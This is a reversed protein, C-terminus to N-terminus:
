INFNNKIIGYFREGLAALSYDAKITQSANLGLQRALGRNNILREMSFIFQEQSSALLGNYENKIICNTEGTSSAIIPKGKAMYELLKVPSKSLNFRTKDWLPFLGADTNDLYDPIDEPYIWGHYVISKCNYRSILRSLEQVFIGDGAISLKIFPYKQYLTLFAEIIFKIYAISELRNVSGHWSFIFDKKEKGPAPRFKDTDVGTPLYYVKRNFQLLYERLYSSAAICFVSKKAFLRTLYEAKSKPFVGFYYGIDERAEWDDMDFVCPVNKAKSALWAALTHYNFRNVIFVSNNTQGYLSAWGKYIYKTKKRFNFNSEDKGSKGGLNDAFSFVSANLGKERLKASFGYSRIRAGPERYGERTIFIFKM